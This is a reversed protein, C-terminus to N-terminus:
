DRKGRIEDAWKAYQQRGQETIEWLGRRSNNALCGSEVLHQRAFRVNNQWRAEKSKEYDMIDKKSLVSRYDRWIIDMVRATEARGGHANLIKLVLFQYIIEPLIEKM